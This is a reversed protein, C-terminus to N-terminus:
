NGGRLSGGECPLLKTIAKDTIRSAIRDGYRDTLEEPTLNSIYVTALRGSSRQDAVSFLTEATVNPIM